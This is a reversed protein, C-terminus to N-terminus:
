ETARNRPTHASIVTTSTVPCSGASDRVVALVVAAVDVPVPELEPLEPLEPVEPLELPDVPRLLVAEPEDPEELLVPVLEDPEDFLVPEPLEVPEPETDESLEPWDHAAPGERHLAGARALM